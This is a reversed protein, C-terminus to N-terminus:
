VKVFRDKEKVVRGQEMLYELQKKMGKTEGPVFYARPERPRGYVICADVVEQFTRPVALLELLKEERKTIVSLYDDWLSGPDEEFLGTEHSTLWVKAPLSRLYNVSAITESISSYPDGYWPGFSTLDYDGLFLVGPEKFFFALHGPSHGPTLIIEVTVTDLRIQDGGQLFGAPTRPRFHCEELYYKRWYDRFETEDLGNWEMFIEFDSIPPAEIRSIWLPLDDFLDIHLWHDDHFHSLWVAKVESNRRLDALLERNAAPDIIIGAGEIYLSHCFPYKGFNDGPIFHIPGFQKKEM